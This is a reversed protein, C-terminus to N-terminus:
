NIFELLIENSLYLKDEPIFINNNKINLKGEKILRKIPFIDEINENYKKYFEKTNIGEIKRLGVILENEMRTKKDELIEEYIYNGKLYKTLNKTNSIRKNDIFSVAGLGFGYYYDNNWYTLNHRSQYNDKSYNSIEYHNYNNDKLTNRIIEYMEYEISEDIYNRNSIGFITNDEIILSYCSIHPIDLKIFEKIENKINNIDNNVGYILDININTIGNNKLKKVAKFVMDKNHHRNLEKLIKDNFSQVGLSVRNIGYKKLLKIKDLSLSEVNSEITYELNNNKKFISLIKLLRELESVDLSTPTGGGIYITDLIDEKYRSKIEKELNSLYDNIYKKDYYIKCFDCYTCITNCFPIHIYASKIM